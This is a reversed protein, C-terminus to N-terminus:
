QYKKAADEVAKDLSTRGKTPTKGFLKDPDFLSKDVIAKGKFDRISFNNQEYYNIMENKQSKAREMQTILLGVRRLNEKVGLQPNFARRILNEGEKETFQGGLIAKLNQQVVAAVSEKVKLLDPNQWATFTDPMIGKLVGTIEPNQELTTYAEKLSALNSEVQSAKDGMRWEVYQDSLVKSVDKAGQTELEGQNVISVNTSKDVKSTKKDLMNSLHGKLESGEPLTSIMETLQQVELIDADLKTGDAAELIVKNTKPDVLRENAGVKLPTQPQNLRAYEAGGLQQAVASESGLLGMVAKMRDAQTPNYAAQAEVPAQYPTGATTPPAGTYISNPDIMPPTAHVEPSGAIAQRPTTAETYGKLADVTALRQKAEMDKQKQDSKHMGYSGALAQGLKAVGQVPHNPVFHNGVMRGGDM